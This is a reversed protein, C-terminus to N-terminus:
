LGLNIGAGYELGTINYPIDSRLIHTNYLANLDLYINNWLKIALGVGFQFNLKVETVDRRLGDNGIFDELIINIGSMAALYPALWSRTLVYRTGVQLPIIKFVEEGGISSNPNVTHNIYGTQFMLAFNSEAITGYGIYFASGKEWNEGFDGINDIYAGHFTIFKKDQSFLNISAFLLAFILIKKM